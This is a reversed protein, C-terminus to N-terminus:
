TTETHKAHNNQKTTFKTIQMLRHRNYINTTTEGPKSKTKEASTLLNAPFLMELIVMAQTL